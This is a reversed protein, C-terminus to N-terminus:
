SQTYSKMTVWRLAVSCWRGYSTLCPVQFLHVHWVKVGTMGSPHFASNRGLTICFVNKNL